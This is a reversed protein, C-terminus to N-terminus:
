LCLVVLNRAPTQHARYSHFGQGCITCHHAIDINSKQLGIARLQEHNTLWLDLKRGQAYGGAAVFAEALPESVEYCCPGASPGIVAHLDQPNSGFHRRMALVTEQAIHQVTGERGAHALGIAKYLPDFLAVPVCDAVTIGIPLRPTISIIADAEAIANEPGAAGKGADEDSAIAVAIGHTQRPSVLRAPDVHLSQLFAARTHANEARLACDGEAIGSMAAVHLGQRQLTSFYRM